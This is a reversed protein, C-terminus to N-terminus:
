KENIEQYYKILEKFTQSLSYNPQWGLENNARENSYYNPTLSINLMTSTVKPRKTIVLEKLKLFPIILWLIKSSLVYKPVKAKLEKALISVMDKQSYNGGILLYKQGQKGKQLVLMIGRALDRVDVLSSGGSLCVPMGKKVRDILQFFKKDGYGVMGCPTAISYNLDQTDRLEREAYFKSLGYYYKSKGKFDYDTREDAPNNVDEGGKIAATSGIHVLRKVKFDKCLESINRTGKININYMLEQDKDWFSIVAAVHIVYDINSFYKQIQDKKTIDIGYEIKIRRDHLEKLFVERKSRALILVKCEKYDSLIRAVVHQGLFGLGGTVLFNNM